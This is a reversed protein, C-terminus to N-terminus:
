GGVVLPTVGRRLLIVGGKGRVVRMPVNPQQPIFAGERGAIVPNVGGVVGGPLQVFGVANGQQFNFTQLALLTSQQARMNITVYKRDASVTAQADMVIGTNVVDIEPEFAAGQAFQARATIPGLVVAAVVICFGRVRM